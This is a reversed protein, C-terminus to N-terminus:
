VAVLNKSKLSHVQEGFVRVLWRGAPPAGADWSEVKGSKGNLAKGIDSILGQVIVHSGVRLKDLVPKVDGGGSSSAAAASSSALSPKVDPKVEEQKVDPKADDQPAPCPTLPPPPPPLEVPPNLAQSPTKLAESLQDVAKSTIEVGVLRQERGDSGICRVRVIRMVKVMAFGGDRGGKKEYDLHDKITSWFPIVAGCLINQQQIRKGVTCKSGHKCGPGHSCISLGDNYLKEWKEKADEPALKTFRPPNATGCFDEYSQTMGLGTNPRHVGYTYLYSGPVAFASIPRQLLFAM